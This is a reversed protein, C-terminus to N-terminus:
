PMQFREQNDNGKQFKKTQDYGTKLDDRTRAFNM